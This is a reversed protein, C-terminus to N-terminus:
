RYKLKRINYDLIGANDNKRLHQTQMRKKWDSDIHVNFVQV